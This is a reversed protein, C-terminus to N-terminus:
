NGLMCNANHIEELKIHNNRLFQFFYVGYITNDQFVILKQKEAAELQKSNYQLIDSIEKKSYKKEPIIIVNSGIVKGDKLM